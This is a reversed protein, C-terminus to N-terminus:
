SCCDADDCCERFKALLEKAEASDCKLIKIGKEGTDGCIVVCCCPSKEKEEAM